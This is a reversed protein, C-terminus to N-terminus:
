HGTLKCTVKGYEENVFFNERDGEDLTQILEESNLKREAVKNKWSGPDKKVEAKHADMKKDKQSYEMDIQYLPEEEPEPKKFM